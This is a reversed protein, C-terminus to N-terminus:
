FDASLIRDVYGMVQDDQRLNRKRVIGMTWERELLCVLGLTHAGPLVAPMSRNSYGLVQAHQGLKRVVGQAWRREPLRNVFNLHGKFTQSLWATVLGKRRLRSGAQRCLELVARNHAGGRLKRVERLVDLAAGARGSQLLVTGKQIAMEIRSRVDMAERATTFRSYVFAAGEWDRCTLKGMNWLRLRYGDGSLAWRGDASLFISEIFGLGEFNRLCSGTAVEWMKLTKDYSGSLAWQGDASMCSSSVTSTHGEFTRLCQGTVMNWLRLTCDKSGSLAWQGNASQCVSRVGHRHGEFTRLCQGTTTNWLKLTNDYSGSLACSGDESLSVSDVHDTHGEFTRVCQGTATDWMKLTM